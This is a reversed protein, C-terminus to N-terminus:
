KIRSGTKANKKQVSLYYYRQMKPESEHDDCIECFLSNDEYYLIPDISNKLWLKKTQSINKKHFRFLGTFILFIDDIDELSHDQYLVKDILTLARNKYKEAQSGDICKLSENLYVQLLYMYFNLSGRERGECYNPVDDNFPLLWEKMDVPRIDEEKLVKYSTLQFLCSRCFEFADNNMEDIIRIYDISNKIERTKKKAM